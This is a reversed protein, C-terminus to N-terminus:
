KRGKKVIRKYKGALLLYRVLVIVIILCVIAILGYIVTYVGISSSSNSDDTPSVVDTDSSDSSSTTDAFDSDAPTSPVVSVQENIEKLSVTARSGLISELVVNLDYYGDGDVDVKWTEGLTMEKTQPNSAIRVLASTSTLSLISVTHSEGGLTIKIEDGVKIDQSTGQLLDNIPIVYSNSSSSGTSSSVAVVSFSSSEKTRYISGNANAYFDATYSADTNPSTWVVSYVFEADAKTNQSYSNYGYGFVASYGYGFSDNIFDWAGELLDYGYGYGYGSSDTFNTQSSVLTIDGFSSDCAIKEGDLDFTCSDGNSVTLTFNTFPVVDDTHLDVKATFTITSGGNVTSASPELGLTIANAPGALFLAVVVLVTALVSFLKSSVKGSNNVGGIWANHNKM